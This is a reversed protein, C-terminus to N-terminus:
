YNLYFDLLMSTNTSFYDKKMENRNSVFSASDAINKFGEGNQHDFGGNLNARLGKAFPLKYDLQLNGITRTVESIDDTQMIMAVPNSVGITNRTGQPNNSGDELADSLQTWTFYGGFRTNGNMVPQTPDYAVAAGIADTNGFDHKSFSTKLNANINLNDNLLSPNLNIGITNRKMDTSKLIGEQLTYGYSIRYPVSKFAGSATLNHDTSIADRYVERQWDTNEDGLRALAADNLGSFGESELQTARARINNGSLM